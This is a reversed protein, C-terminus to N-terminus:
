KKLKQMLDAVGSTKTVKGARAEEIAKKTTENPRNHFTIFKDNKFEKLYEVLKRGKATKEDITVTTM